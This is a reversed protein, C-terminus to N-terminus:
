IPSRKIGGREGVNQLETSRGNRASPEILFAACLYMANTGSSSPPPPTSLLPFRVEKDNMMVCMRQEPFIGIKYPPSLMVGKAKGEM